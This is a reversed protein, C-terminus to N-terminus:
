TPLKFFDMLKMALSLDGKLKVKGQAFASMANLEGTILQLFDNADATLTLRASETTGQEVKAAGDHIHLIWDGGQDGTLNFLIDADIGEAKEPQFAKPMLEMLKEITLEESM